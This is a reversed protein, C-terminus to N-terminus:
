LEDRLTTVHGQVGSSESIRHKGKSEQDHQRFPSVVLTQWLWMLVVLVITWAFVDETALNHYARSLQYGMGSNSAVFEAFIVSRWAFSFGLTAAGLLAPLVSPWVVHVTYGWLGLPELAALDRLEAPIAVLAERVQVLVVPFCVVFVVFMPTMEEAVGFWLVALILWVVTPVVQMADLWPTLAYRLWRFRHALIGCALAALYAGVFGSFARRLTLGLQEAVAGESVLECLRQWTLAPSPLVMPLLHAAARNWVYLLLLFEAAIILSRALLNLERRQHLAIQRM